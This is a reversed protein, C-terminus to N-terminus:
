WGLNVKDIINKDVVHYNTECLHVFETNLVAWHRKVREFEADLSVQHMPISDYNQFVTELLEQRQDSNLARIQGGGNACGSPCAMVEIYDYEVKDRKMKQVLNQINRFGYCKAVTLQVEDGSRVEIVDLNKMKQTSRIDLSHDPKSHDTLFRKVIYNAYGGSADGDDASGILDGREFSSLWNLKEDEGDFDGKEDNKGEDNETEEESLLEDMEAASLVCDVERSSENAFEPRSAELKKDFCPMITAHFIADSKVSLVKALYDKVLVGAIAQPSRIRSIHPVLLKGHTKEAYCVFGPCASTLIPKDEARRRLFEDYSLQLTFLRAFSSDLVYKVGLRKLCRSVLHATQKINLRRSAAISCVAQPSVTVVAMECRSIGELFKPKSQEKFRMFQYLFM